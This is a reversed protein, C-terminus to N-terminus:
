ADPGDIWFGHGCKKCTYKYDEYGGCSSEWVEYVMERSKCHLCQRDCAVEKSFDGDSDAMAQNHM